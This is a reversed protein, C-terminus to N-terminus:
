SGLWLLQVDWSAYPLWPLWVDRTAAWRRRRQRHCLSHLGACDKGDIVARGRRQAGACVAVAFRSPLSKAQFKEDYIDGLTNICANYAYTAMDMVAEATLDARDCDALTPRPPPETLALYKELTDFAQASCSPPAM